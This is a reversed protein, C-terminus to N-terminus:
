QFSTAVDMKASLAVCVGIDVAADPTMAKNFAISSAEAFHNNV